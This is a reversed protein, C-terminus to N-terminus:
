MLCVPTTVDRAENVIATQDQFFSIVAIREYDEDGDPYEVSAQAEALPTLGHNNRKYTAEPYANYLSQLVFLSCGFRCAIHMPLDDDETSASIL